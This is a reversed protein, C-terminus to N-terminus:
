TVLEYIEKMILQKAAVDTVLLADKVNVFADFRDLAIFLLELSISELFKENIFNKYKNRIREVDTLLKFM